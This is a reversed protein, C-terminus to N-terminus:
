GQWPVDAMGAQQNLHRALVFFYDSLRNLFMVVPGLYSHAAPPGAPRPDEQITLEIVTREARRCVTRAVHSWAASVHGGPLIFAKLEPLGASIADILAEIRRVPELGMPTLRGLTESDPTASLWAGAQLLDSQIRRLEAMVVESGPPLHAALAGVVANLEDVEGCARVRPHSKPVREGSILSTKGQDGTQTYIKM